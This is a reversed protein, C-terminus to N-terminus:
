DNKHAQKMISTIFFWTPYLDSIDFMKSDDLEVKSIGKITIKKYKPVIEDDEEVFVMVETGKKCFTRFLM